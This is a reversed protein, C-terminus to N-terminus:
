CPLLVLCIRRTATDYGDCPHMFPGLAKHWTGLAGVGCQVQHILPRRQMLSSSLASHADVLATVM